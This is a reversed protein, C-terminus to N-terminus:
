VKLFIECILILGDFAVISGLNTSTQSPKNKHELFNKSIVWVINSGELTTLLSGFIIIM